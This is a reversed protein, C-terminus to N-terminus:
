GAPPRPSTSSSAEELLRRELERRSEAYHEADLTGAALDRELEDLQGRYIAANSEIQDPTAIERKSLLPRLVVWLAFLTLVTAAIWFWIEPQAM